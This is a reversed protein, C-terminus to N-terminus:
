HGSKQDLSVFVSVYKKDMITVRQNIVARSLVTNPIEM